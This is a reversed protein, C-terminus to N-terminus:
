VLRTVYHACIICGRAVACIGGLVYSATTRVRPLSVFRNRLSIARSKVVFASDGVNKM